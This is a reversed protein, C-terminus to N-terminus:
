PTPTDQPISIRFPIQQSVPDASLMRRLSQNSAPPIMRSFHPAEWCRFFHNILHVTMPFSVSFEGLARSPHLPFKAEEGQFSDLFPLPIHSHYSMQYFFQNQEETCSLDWAWHRLFSMTIKFSLHTTSLGLHQLGTPLHTWSFTFAYQKWSVWSCCLRQWLFLTVRLLATLYRYIHPEWRRGIPNGIQSM